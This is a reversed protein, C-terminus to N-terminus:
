KKMREQVLLLQKVAAIKEDFTQWHGDILRALCVGNTGDLWGSMSTFTWTKVPGDAGKKEVEKASEILDVARKAYSWCIVSGNPINNMRKYHELDRDINM